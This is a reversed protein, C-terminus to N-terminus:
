EVEFTQLEVPVCPDNAASPVTSACNSMPAFCSTNAGVPMV